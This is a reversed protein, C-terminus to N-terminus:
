GPQAKAWGGVQRGLEVLERSIFEYQKLSTFGLDKGVRVLLRLVQVEANAQLLHAKKERSYAARVLLELVTLMRTEIREGLVFRHSRPFKGVHNVLWLLIDYAKTVAAPPSGSLPETMRHIM